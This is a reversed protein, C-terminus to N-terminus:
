GAQGQQLPLVLGFSRQFGNSFFLHRVWLDDIQLLNGGVEVADFADGFDDEKSGVSRNESTTQVTM